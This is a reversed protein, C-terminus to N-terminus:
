QNFKDPNQQLQFVTTNGSVSATRVLGRRIAEGVTDTYGHVTLTDTAVVPSAGAATILDGPNKKGTITFNAM